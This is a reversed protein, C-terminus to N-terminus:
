VYCINLSDFIILNISAGFYCNYYQNSRHYIGRLSIKLKELTRSIYSVIPYYVGGKFFIVTVIDVNTNLSGSSYMKVTIFCM